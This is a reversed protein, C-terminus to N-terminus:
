KVEATLTALHSRVVCDRGLKKGRYLAQDAVALLDLHTSGNPVLEACGFSTTLKLVGEPVCIEINRISTRFREALQVAQDLNTSPLLAVFEEGGIRAFTDTPRLSSMCTHTFQRLAEDGAAHGYTDNVRKFHDIDMAILALPQGFHKARLCEREAVEFFHSRNYAGTLHDKRLMRTLKDTDLDQRQVDRLVVTYGSMQHENLFVDQVAILRQCWYSEGTPRHHRGETLHWGDRAAVAMQEQSTPRASASDQPLFVELTKGLVDAESFGTLRQVSSSAGNITGTPDLSIVAFNNVSDLLSAFWTEAQKLRREQAVQVSVDALTMIFRKASVKVLTCSLVKAEIGRDLRAPEVVIRHCDCVTGQKRSYTDVLNRIEPAYAEIVDFVNGMQPTKAIPLLLQMAHPNMLGIGGNAQVEILGVPCAYLFQLLQEQIAEESTDLLLDEHRAKNEAVPSIDM